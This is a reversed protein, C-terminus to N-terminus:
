KMRELVLTWFAFLGSTRNCLISAFSSDLLTIFQDSSFVIVVSFLGKQLIDLYVLVRPRKQRIDLHVRFRDAKQSM